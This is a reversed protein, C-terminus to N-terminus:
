SGAGDAMPDTGSGTGLAAADLAVAPWSSNARADNKADCFGSLAGPAAVTSFATVLMARLMRNRM